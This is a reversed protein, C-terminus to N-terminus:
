KVGKETNNHYLDKLVPKLSKWDIIKDIEELKNKPKFKQYEVKLYYDEFNNIFKYIVLEHIFM